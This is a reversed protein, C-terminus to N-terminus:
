ADALTAYRPDNQIYPKPIITARSHCTVTTKKIRTDPTGQGRWESWRPALAVAVSLVCIDKDLHNKSHRVELVKATRMYTASGRRVPYNIYDGAQIENGYLDRAQAMKTEEEQKQEQQKTETEKVEDVVRRVLGSNLKEIQRMKIYLMDVKKAITLNSGVIFEVASREIM